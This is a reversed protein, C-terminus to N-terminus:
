DEIAPFRSVEIASLIAQGTEEAARPGPSLTDIVDLGFLLDRRSKALTGGGTDQGPGDMGALVPMREALPVGPGFEPRIESRLPNPFLITFWAANTLVPHRDPNRTGIGPLAQQAIAANGVTGDSGIAWAGGIELRHAWVFKATRARLRIQANREAPVNAGVLFRVRYEFGPEIRARRKLDNDGVAGNILDAAVINYRDAPAGSADLTLPLGPGSSVTLGPTDSALPPAFGAEPTPSMLFSLRAGFFDAFDGNTTGYDKIRTGTDFASPTISGISAETLALAGQQQPETALVEFTRQIEEGPTTDYLPVAIPAFDVRYISPKTPDMSPRLEAGITNGEPDASSFHNIEQFASVAFRQAIRLRFNPVQAGNGPESQGTSYISFKARLHRGAGIANFPVNGASVTRWGAVRVRGRSDPAVGSLLAQAGSDHLNATYGPVNAVLPEWLNGTALNDALSIGTGTGQVRLSFVPTLPDDTRITVTASKLGTSVPRFNVTLVLSQGSQLTTPSIPNISFDAAGSVEPPGM